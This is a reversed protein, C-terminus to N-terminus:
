WDPPKEQATAVSAFAACLLFGKVTGVSAAQTARQISTHM